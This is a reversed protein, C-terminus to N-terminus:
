QDQGILRQNKNGSEHAQHLTDYEFQLGGTTKYKKRLVKRINERYVNNDRAAASITPYRKGTTTCIVPKNQYSYRMEGLIHVSHRINESSTCWELNEVRNDTKDGNIHNVQPKNNPNEIFTEAVLRHVLRHRNKSGLNVILYGCKTHYLKLIKTTSRVKGFNSVQYKGDTGHIDRWKEQM